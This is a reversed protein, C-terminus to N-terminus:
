SSRHMVIQDRWIVPTSYSEAQRAGSANPYSQKWVTKGTKRDVALLYGDTVEDHNLIVLDGAIIPSTGSGFMTKPVPLKVEWQQKGDFDLAILGYSGFYAYVREGDVAPTATVPNSVSQVKEIQSATVARRWLINGNKAALCLIELKSNEKDFGTVFLRDGWIVPSSHGPPLGQKWLFNKSAGFEVPVRAESLAIGSANPGRFQSWNAQDDGLLLLGTLGFAVAAWRTTM